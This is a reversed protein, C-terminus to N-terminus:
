RYDAVETNSVRRSYRAFYRSTNRSKTVGFYRRINCAVFSSELISHVIYMLFRANFQVNLFAQRHLYLLSIDLVCLNKTGTKSFWM